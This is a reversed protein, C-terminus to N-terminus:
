KRAASIRYIVGNSDDSVLVSGDVLQVFGAIRGLYHRGDAQLFGTLFDETGQPKGEQDFKIRIVKYGSPPKRNWSGRLTVFADMRMEQPFANGRYFSFSIPSSHAPLELMAPTATSCAAERSRDPPPKSTYRDVINRGFCFPWGYDKGEEIRNLEEPPIDNGRWDSGMDMGWLQGTAPHWDFGLTNRLGRAFIERNSGDLAFRLITAHEPNSEQCANCSSGVHVYLRNDPGVRLTRNPHQGGDPLRDVLMELRVQEQANRPLRAHYVRRVDTVFLRGDHIAIGHADPLKLITRSENAVGDRDSDLLRVVDGEALRTVYVSGDPGVAMMRPNGLGSAFVSIRFGQPARLRNVFEPAFPIKKPNVLFGQAESEEFAAGPQSRAPLAALLAAVFM